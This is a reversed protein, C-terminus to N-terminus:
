RRNILLNLRQLNAPGMVLLTKRDPKLSARCSLLFNKIGNRPHFINWIGLSASFYKKTGFFPQGCEGCWMYMAYILTYRVEPKDCSSTAEVIKKGTVKVSKSSENRKGAKNKGAQNANLNTKALTKDSYYQLSRILKDALEDTTKTDGAPKITKCKAVVAESLKQPETSELERIFQSM